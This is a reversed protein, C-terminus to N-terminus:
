HSLRNEDGGVEEKSRGGDIKSGGSAVRRARDLALVGDGLDVEVTVEDAM